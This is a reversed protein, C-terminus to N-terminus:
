DVFESLESNTECDECLDSGNESSGSSGSLIKSMDKGTITKFHTEPILAYKGKAEFNILCTLGITDFNLFKPIEM